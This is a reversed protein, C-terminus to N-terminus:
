ILGRESLGELVFALREQPSLVPVREVRYGLASYDRFLWEDLFNAFVEDDLRAGDLQLPLRDLIFVSAYCYNFCEPLFENPDLGKSRHFTLSDPLGRDLFVVDTARLRKEVSMQMADIAAETSVDSMVEEITRGRALEKDIYERATEPVTKFGREALMNIMTTKGTCASGTIVHWNTQVHFPTALLDPDLENTLYDHADDLLQHDDKM